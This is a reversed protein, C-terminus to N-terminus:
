AITTNDGEHECLREEMTLFPLDILFWSRTRRTASTGSRSTEPIQKPRLSLPRINRIATPSRAAFIAQNEKDPLSSTRISQCVRLMAFSEPEFSGLCLRLDLRDAGVAAPANQQELFRRRTDLQDVGLRQLRNRRDIKRHLPAVFNRSRPGVRLPRSAFSRHQQGAPMQEDGFLFLRRRQNLEARWM